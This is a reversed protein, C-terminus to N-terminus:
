GAYKGPKRLLGAAAAKYPIEFPPFCSKGRKRERQTRERVGSFPRAGRCSRHVLHSNKKKCIDFIRM